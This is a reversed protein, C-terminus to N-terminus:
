HMTCHRRESGSVGCREKYKWGGNEDVYAQVDATWYYFGAIWNLASPAGPERIKNHEGYSHPHAFGPYLYYLFADLIKKAEDYRKRETFYIAALANDYVDFRCHPTVAYNPCPEPLKCLEDGCDGGGISNPGFTQLLGAGNEMFSQRPSAALYSDIIKLHEEAPGPETAELTEPTASRFAYCLALRGGLRLM